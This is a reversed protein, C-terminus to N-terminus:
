EHHAGITANLNELIKTNKTTGHFISDRVKYKKHQSEVVNVLIWDLNPYREKFVELVDRADLNYIGDIFGTNLEVLLQKANSM